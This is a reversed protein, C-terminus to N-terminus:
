VSSSARIDPLLDRAQGVVPDDADGGIVVEPAHARGAGAAGAGLDEEVVAVVDPAAGRCRGVLIAVPEDLDPVEDEHLVLLEGIAGARLQVCDISVPM